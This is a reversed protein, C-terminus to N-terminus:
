GTKNQPDQPGPMTEPRESFIVACLSSSLPLSHLGACQTPRTLGSGDNRNDQKLYSTLFLRRMILNRGMFLAIMNRPLFPPHNKNPLTNCAGWWFVQFTKYILYLKQKCHRCSISPNKASPGPAPGSQGQVSLFSRGPFAPHFEKGVATFNSSM